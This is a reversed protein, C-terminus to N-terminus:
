VRRIIGSAISRLVGHDCRVQMSPNPYRAGDTMFSYRSGGRVERAGGFNPWVHFHNRGSQSGLSKSNSSADDYLM